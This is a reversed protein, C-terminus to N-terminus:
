HNKNKLKKNSRTAKTILCYNDFMNLINRYDYLTKGAKEPEKRIESLISFAIRITKEDSDELNEYIQRKMNAVLEQITDKDLKNKSQDIKEM